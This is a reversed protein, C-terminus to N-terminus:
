EHRLEVSPAFVSLEVNPVIMIREGHKLLLNVADRPCGTRGTAANRTLTAIVMQFQRVPISRIPAPVHKRPKAARLGVTPYARDEGQGGAVHGTRGDRPSTQCGLRRLLYHPM